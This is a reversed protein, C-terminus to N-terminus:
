KNSISINNKGATKVKYLNVDAKKFLTDTTDAEIGKAVGISLSVSPLKSNSLSVLEELKRCKSLVDEDKLHESEEIVISFEDGGLRFAFEKENDFVEKICKSVKVLVKDGVEHGFQDNVLKFDDVDLLIFYSNELRISKYIRDYGARNYLGTLKDHEAEYVLRNQVDKAENRYENITDTLYQFEKIPYFGLEKDVKIRNIADNVPRILFRFLTFVIFAIFIIMIIILSQQFILITKLRSTSADIQEELMLDIDNVAETIANIIIAKKSYYTTGYVIDIARQAQADNDLALDADSIPAEKIEQPINDGLPDDLSELTMRMAYYEANMLNMSENYAIEANNFASTGELYEKIAEYSEDRRRTDKAEIFYNELHKFEKTVTYARVEDTLYDSATRIDLAKDKWAIYNNTSERVERFNSLLFFLSTFLLTSIVISIASVFIGITRLSINRKNHGNKKM